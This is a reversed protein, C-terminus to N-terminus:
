RALESLEFDYHEIMVGCIFEERDFHEDMSGHMNLLNYADSLKELLQQSAELEYWDTYKIFM